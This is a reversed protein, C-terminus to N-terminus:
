QTIWAVADPVKHDPLEEISRLGFAALLDAEAKKHKKLRNRLLGVQNNGTKQQADGPAQPSAQAAPAAKKQSGPPQRKPPDKKIEGGGANGDDDDAPLNFIMKHFFRRAYTLSSGFGHLDTKNVTGASGKTDPPLDVTYKKSAGSAHTVEAEFTYWGEVRPDVMDVAIAFGEAAYIPALEKIIDGLQEYYSKTQSNFKTKIIPQIRGQVRAMAAAYEIMAAKDFMENKWDMLMKFKNMDANPDSIVRSIMDMVKDSEALMLPRAPVFTIPVSNMDPAPIVEQAPQAPKGTM